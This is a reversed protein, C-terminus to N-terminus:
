LDYGSISRLSMGPLCVGREHDIRAPDCLILWSDYGGRVKEFGLFLIDGKFGSPGM